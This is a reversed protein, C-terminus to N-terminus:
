TKTYDSRSRSIEIRDVFTVVRTYNIININLRVARSQLISEWLYASTCVEISSNVHVSFLIVMQTENIDPCFISWGLGAYEPRSPGGYRGCVLLVHIMKKEFSGPLSIVLACKQQHLPPELLRFAQFLQVAEADRACEFMLKFFYVNLNKSAPFLTLGCLHIHPLSLSCRRRCTRTHARTHSHACHQRHM